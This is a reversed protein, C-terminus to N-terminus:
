TLIAYRNNTRRCEPQPGDTEMGNEAGIVAPVAARASCAPSMMFAAPVTGASSIHARVPFM